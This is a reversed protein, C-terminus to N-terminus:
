IVTSPPYKDLLIKFNKKLSHNPFLKKVELVTDFISITDYLNKLLRSKNYDGDFREALSITDDSKYYIFFRDGERYDSGELATMVKTENARESEQMTSSLTKRASWRKIDKVNMAEEVYKSYVEQLKAPIEDVNETYVMTKIVDNTFDKLAQSKTTAKLSSGKVKIKDGERLIYNKAKIVIITEYYGDDEWSIYEDYLSNLEKILSHKEQESFVDGTPKCITISDTDYNVLKFNHSM